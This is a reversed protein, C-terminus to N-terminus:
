IFHVARVEAKQYGKMFYHRLARTNSLCQLSANMFCTNGLNTLGTTGPEIIRPKELPSLKRRTQMREIAKTV